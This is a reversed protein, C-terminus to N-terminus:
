CDVQSGMWHGTSVGTGKSQSHFGSLRTRQTTSTNVASYKLNSQLEIYVSDKFWNSNTNWTFIYVYTHTHVHIYTFVLSCM